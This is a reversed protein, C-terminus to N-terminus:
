VKLEVKARNRLNAVVQAIPGIFDFVVFNRIVEIGRSTASSQEAQSSRDFLCRGLCDVRCVGSFEVESHDAM